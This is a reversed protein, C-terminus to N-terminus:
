PQPVTYALPLLAGNKNFPNYSGQPGVWGCGGYGHMEVVQNSDHFAWWSSESSPGARGIGGTPVSFPTGRLDVNALGTRSCGMAAAYTMATVPERDVHKLSGTSTAFTQDGTDVALTVPNLRVRTYRTRVDTGPSNGGATYQSYNAGDETHVLPLYERPTGAMDQCWATWRKLPDKNVFLAYEGDPAGPRAAQLEQCTAPRDGGRYHLQLLGGHQNFPNYSGQPGVWGCFGGGSLTVVQGDESTVAAGTTGAGGVGFSEAEVTFPTGRLDVNGQGQGGGCAMAVGYTMATVTEPSHTLEGTSSAFTQDATDVRLTVPDIRLRTFHTRVDTGPSSGGATYQSFNADAGTRTLPLYETPTGTMDHCYATWSASTDGAVYLVYDGDPAGPQAARIDLCRSPRATLDQPHEALTSDSDSAGCGAAALALLSWTLPRARRLLHPLVSPKSANM